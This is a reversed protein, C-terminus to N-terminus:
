TGYGQDSARAKTGKDVESMLPSGSPSSPSSSSTSSSNGSQRRRQPQSIGSGSSGRTDSGDSDSSDSVGLLELRQQRIEMRRELPSMAEQGGLGTIMERASNLRFSVNSKVKQLRDSGSLLDGSMLGASFDKASTVPGEYNTSM